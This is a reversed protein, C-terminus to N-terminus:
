FVLCSQLDAMLSTSTHLVTCYISGATVPLQPVSACYQFIDGQRCVFAKGCHM